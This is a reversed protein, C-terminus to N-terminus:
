ASGAGNTDAPVDKAPQRRPLIERVPCRFGPIVDEGSLEDDERLEGPPGDLRLVKVKSAEPYIV